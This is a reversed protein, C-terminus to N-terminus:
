AHSSATVGSSATSRNEAETAAGKPPKIVLTLLLSVVSMVAIVIFTAHYGGLQAAIF